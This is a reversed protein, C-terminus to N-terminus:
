NIPEKKLKFPHNRKGCCPCKEYGVVARDCSRCWSRYKLKPTLSMQRPKKQYPTDLIDMIIRLTNGM